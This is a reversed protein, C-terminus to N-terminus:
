RKAANGSEVIVPNVRKALGASVRGQLRFRVGDTVRGYQEAISRYRQIANFVPYLFRYGVEQGADFLKKVLRRVPVSWHLAAEIM